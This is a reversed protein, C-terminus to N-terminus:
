ARKVLWSIAVTIFLGVIVVWDGADPRKIQWVIATKSIASILPWVLSAVWPSPTIKFLMPMIWWILLQVVLAAPLGYWKVALRLVAGLTGDQSAAPQYAIWNLYYAGVACGVLVFAWQGVLKM